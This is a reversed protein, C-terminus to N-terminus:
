FLVLFQLLFYLSYVNKSDEATMAVSLESSNSRGGDTTAYVFCEYVSFATLGTLNTSVSETESSALVLFEFTDNCVVTYNRLVGNPPRPVIWTAVLTM